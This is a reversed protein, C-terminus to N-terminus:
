MNIKYVFIVSIFASDFGPDKIRKTAIINSRHKTTNLIFKAVKSNLCNNQSSLSM